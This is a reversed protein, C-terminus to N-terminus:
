RKWITADLNMIAQVVVSTAAVEAEDLTTVPPSEGLGVLLTAEKPHQAYYTSQSAGLRSLEQLEENSPHRGSFALFAQRVRRTMDNPYQKVYRQATVRAAEVFQIDNLLVLAQLPTNTRSRTVTCFERSPADFVAQSPNPATRKRVSYLSRRYLDGGIGQRYAPSMSNKERWLGAPQYPSVPMGGMRRDLLGSVQLAMDRIMESTLRGSPGRTLWRNGPDDRRSAEAASDQRYTSSLVIKRVLQKVDWHSDVFDRALFDLLDPHSPLAGQVGFDESTAVLGKGFFIQWIRNVAVRATLPHNSDVLWHALSLRDAGEGQIRNPLLTPTAREAPRNEKEPDDYEGRALVFAPRPVPLERMVMTDQIGANFQLWQQVAQSARAAQAQYNESVRIVHARKLEDPALAPEDVKGSLVLTELRTLPRGFVLLDDVLGGKLGPSRFRAGIQIGKQGEQPDQKLQDRVVRNASVGDVWIDLGSALGTGHFHIVVRHKGPTLRENTEISVANGPWFRVQSLRLRGHILELVTGHFGADTGSQRHLVIADAVPEPLVLWFALSARTWPKLGAAAEAVQFGNDGDMRYSSPSDMAWDPQDVQVFENKSNLGFRSVLAEALGTKFETWEFPGSADGVNALRRLSELRRRNLENMKLRQSEDPLLLSPTPTRRGDQYMGWEDISNFFASLNYYDQQSIPDFKHDHCRACELTMGLMVTGFTNVRDAVYEQRWEEEVSGGENTQRHLRNFTTALIRDASIPEMLDGALQQVLFQDFPLNENFARVVWDRYPWTPSLLDSQYGYSDAYRAADLWPVAMREGFAPSDLLREVVKEYRNPDSDALFDQLSKTTPPLGTLDFTVRRLWRWDPAEPGPKLGMKLHVRAVFSDIENRCWGSFETPVDVDRPLPQYSWHSEYQAGQRVWRELMGRDSETLKLHSAPPPMQVLPDASRIREIGPSANVDDGWVGFEAAAAASDLRVGSENAANDPGHCQFCHDALIPRIDRSYSIEDACAHQQVSGGSAFLTGIIWVVIMRNPNCDFHVM